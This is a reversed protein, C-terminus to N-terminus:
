KLIMLAYESFHSQFRESIVKFLHLATPAVVNNALMKKFTCILSYMYYFNRAESQDTSSNNIQSIKFDTKRKILCIKKISCGCNKVFRIM